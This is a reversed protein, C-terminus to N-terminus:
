DHSRPREGGFHDKIADDILWGRNRNFWVREHPESTATLDRIITIDDLATQAPIKVQFRRYGMGRLQTFSAAADERAAIRVVGFVPVDDSLRGGWLDVLPQGVAKGCPDWLAMDIAAKANGHGRLAREMKYYLSRIHRPDHGLILPAVHAAGREHAQRYSPCITHRRQVRREGGREGMTPM